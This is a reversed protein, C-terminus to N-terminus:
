ARRAPLRAAGAVPPRDRPPEDIPQPRPRPPDRQPAPPDDPAPPAYPPDAPHDHLLDLRHM